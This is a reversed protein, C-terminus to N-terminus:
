VGNLVATAESVFKRPFSKAVCWAVVDPPNFDPRRTYYGIPGYQNAPMAGFENGGTLGAVVSETPIANAMDMVSGDGEDQTRSLLVTGTPLARTTSLTGDNARTNYQFDDLEITKGLIQQAIQLMRPDQKTPLAAPTTLFYAGLVLTAKNAFETTAIMNRFDPTTMTVKDYMIGYNLRAYQDLAFIDAIPTATAAVSWATGVTVKLGAPMGWTAGSIVLGLRSYSFSDIMMACALANMRWRVGLLLNAALNKDWDALANEGQATPNNRLAELRNLLRQGLRQGHKINPAPQAVVDLTMSEQVVAEQEDAVLDAALIKGTFRGVLEDDFAPVLPLRALYLLPRAIELKAALRGVIRNIRATTLWRMGSLQPM